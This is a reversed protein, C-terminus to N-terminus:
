RLIPFPYFVQSDVFFQFSEVRQRILMGELCYNPSVQRFAHSSSFRKEGEVFCVPDGDFFKKGFIVEFGVAITINILEHTLPIDTYADYDVFTDKAYGIMSRTKGRPDRWACIM